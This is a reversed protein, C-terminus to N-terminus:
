HKGLNYNIINDICKKKLLLILRKSHSATTAADRKINESLFYHFVARRKSSLTSSNIDAQPVASFHELAIDDISM